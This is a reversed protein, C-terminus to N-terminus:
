HRYCFDFFIFFNGLFIPKYQNMGANAFMLTPDNEPVSPSSPWHTHAHKSIFFNVFTERVKNGPWKPAALNTHKQLREIKRKSGPIEAYLREIVLDKEQVAKELAAIRAELQNLYTEAAELYEM